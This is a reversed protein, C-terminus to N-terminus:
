EKANFYHINNQSVMLYAHGKRYGYGSFSNHLVLPFSLIIELTLYIYLTVKKDQM